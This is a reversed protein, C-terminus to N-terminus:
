IGRWFDNGFVSGRPGDASVRVSVSLLARGRPESRDHLLMGRFVTDSDFSHAFSAFSLCM